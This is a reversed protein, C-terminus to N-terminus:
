EKGSHTKNQVEDNQFMNAIMTTDNLYPMFSLRKDSVTMPKNITSTNKESQVNTQPNNINKENLDGGVELFNKSMLSGVNSLNGSGEGISSRDTLSNSHPRQYQSNIPSSGDISNNLKRDGLPKIEINGNKEWMFEYLIKLLEKKIEPHGAALKLVTKLLSDFFKKRSEKTNVLQFKSPFDPFKLNQYRYTLSDYFGQFETYRKQVSCDVHINEIDSDILLVVDYTVKVFINTSFKAVSIEMDEPSVKLFDQLSISPPTQCQTDKSM